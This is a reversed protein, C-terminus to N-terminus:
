LSVKGVHTSIKVKPCRRCMWTINTFGHAQKQYIESIIERTREKAPLPENYEVDMKQWIHRHWSM